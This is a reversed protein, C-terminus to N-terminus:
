MTVSVPSATIYITDSITRVVTTFKHKPAHSRTVTIIATATPQVPLKLALFEYWGAPSFLAVSTATSIAIMAFTARRDHDGPVVIGIAFFWMYFFGLLIQFLPHDVLYIHIACGPIAIALLIFDFCNYEDNDDNETVAVHATVETHREPSLSCKPLSLPKNGDENMEALTRPKDLDELARIQSSDRAKADDTAGEIASDDRYKTTARLPKTLAFQSQPHIIEDVKTLETKM